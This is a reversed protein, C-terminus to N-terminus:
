LLFTVTNDGILAGHAQSIALQHDLHRSCTRLKGVSTESQFIPSNKASNHGYIIYFTNSNKVFFPQIETLFSGIKLGFGGNSLGPGARSM